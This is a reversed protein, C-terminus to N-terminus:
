PPMAIMTQFWSIRDLIPVGRRVINATGDKRYLREGHSASKTGFGTAPDSKFKKRTTAM